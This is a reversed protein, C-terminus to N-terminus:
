VINSQCLFYKQPGLFLKQLGWDRPSISVSVIAVVINAEAPGTIKGSFDAVAESVKDCSISFKPTVWVTSLRNESEGFYHAVLGAECASLMKGSLNIEAMGGHRLTQVEVSGVSTISVGNVKEALLCALIASSAADGPLERV